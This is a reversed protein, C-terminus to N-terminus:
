FWLIVVSLSFMMLLTVYAWFCVLEIM